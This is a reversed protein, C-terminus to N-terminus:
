GRGGQNRHPGRVRFAGAAVLASAARGFVVSDDRVLVALTFLAAWLVDDNDTGHTRLACTVRRPVGTELQRIRVADHVADDGQVVCCMCACVGFGAILIVCMCGCCAAKDPACAALRVDTRCGAEKRIRLSCCGGGARGWWGCVQILVGLLVLAKTQIDVEDLHHDLAAIIHVLCEQLLMCVAEAVTGEAKVRHRLVCLRPLLAGLVADEASSPVCRDVQCCDGQRGAQRVQTVHAQMMANELTLPILCLLVSLQVM